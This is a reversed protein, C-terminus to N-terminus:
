VKGLKGAWPDMSSNRRRMEMDRAVKLAAKERKEEAQKAKQMFLEFDHNEEGEVPTNFAPKIDVTTVTTATKATSSSSTFVKSLFAKEMTPSAPSTSASPTKSSRRRHLSKFFM